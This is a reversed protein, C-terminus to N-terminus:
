YLLPQVRGDVGIKAERGEMAEVAGEGDGTGRGDAQNGGPPEGCVYIPETEPGQREVCHLHVWGDGYCVICIGGKAYWGGVIDDILVRLGNPVQKAM